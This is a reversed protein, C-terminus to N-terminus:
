GLGDVRVEDGEDVRVHHEQITCVGFFPLGPSSKMEPSLLFELVLM